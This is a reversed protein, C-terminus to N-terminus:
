NIKNKCKSCLTLSENDFTKISEVADKMFCDEGSKCHKLGFNHGIEHMCIKKLRDIYNQRSTNKIRFSSVVCFSGLRYGLGFIGWDEYKSKFEKTFGFRDTKTTSIDNSTLGLVIDISDPKERRLIRIISDARYRPSKVNIFASKPIVKTPLIIVENGYFDLVAKQLTDILNKDFGEYAQIAIVKDKNPKCNLLLLSLLILLFYRM